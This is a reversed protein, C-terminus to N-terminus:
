YAPSWWAYLMALAGVAFCYYAFYDIKAAKVLKFMVKCAWMGTIFAVVFSITYPVFNVSATLSQEATFAKIGKLLAAGSLPILLMLFSFRAAQEREIGMALALSITSGSRSIGPLVAVTQAIGMLFSKIPTVSGNGHKNLRSLLLIFGNVFLLLGVLMLRGQFLANIQEEYLLGVVGVPVASLLLLLMYYQRSSLPKDFIGQLLYAIDRRMVVFISLLTAFHVLLTLTLDNSADLGLFIKALELHGDSSIPIFETIGQILGIVIAELNSM